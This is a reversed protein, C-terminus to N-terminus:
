TAAMTGIKGGFIRLNGTSTRQHNQSDDGLLLRVIIPAVTDAASGSIQECDINTSM